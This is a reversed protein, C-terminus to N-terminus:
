LKDLFLYKRTERRSILSVCSQSIGYMDSIKSQTLGGQRLNWIEVVQKDTLKAHCHDEGRPVNGPNIQCMARGKSFMDRMNDSPTGLFLHDPNCCAPIDCKHCVLMGVPIKKNNSLEWAFRHAPTYTTRIPYFVGYGKRSKSAIWLSCGMENPPSVKKVFRNICKDTFLQM